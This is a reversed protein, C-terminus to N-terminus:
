FNRGYAKRRNFFTIIPEIFSESTDLKLFSIGLKLFFDELNKEQQKVYEAYRERVKKGHIYMRRDSFPDKLMVARKAKPLVSDAPDRVMFTIIDFREANVRLTEQWEQGKLGLFDTILVIMSHPKMYALAFKFAQNIDCGGGYNKPDLLTEILRYYQTFGGQPPSQKIIKNSFLMYGVQDANKVMIFALSIVLEGAYEAKLKKGTTFIMSNSVDIMFLVDLNREELYEKSLLKNARTSARWDITSADENQNYEVYGDFEVGRGRFRSKYSGLLKGGLASRTTIEFAKIVPAVNILMRRM